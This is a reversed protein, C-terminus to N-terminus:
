TKKLERKRSWLYISWIPIMCVTSVLLFMSLQHQFTLSVILMSLVSILLYFKFSLFSPTYKFFLKLKKVFNVGSKGYTRKQFNSSSFAVKEKKVTYKLYAEFMPFSVLFKDNKFVISRRFIRFSDTPYKGWILNLLNNRFHQIHNISGRKEYKSQDMGFVIDIEPSNNIKEYLSDIESVPHEMDDDMNVIYKGKSAEIGILTALFQGKNQPLHIGRIHLDRNSLKQIIKWSLDASNDDVLIIEYNLNRKSFLEEIQHCIIPLSQESNYVPIVISIDM